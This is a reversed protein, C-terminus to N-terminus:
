LVIDRLAGDLPSIEDPHFAYFATEHGATRDEPLVFDSSGRSFGVFRLATGAVLLVLLCVSAREIKM